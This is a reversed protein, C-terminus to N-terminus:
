KAGKHGTIPGLAREIAMLTRSNPKYVGRELQSITEESYCMEKGLRAQTWGKARRAEKIRQGITM